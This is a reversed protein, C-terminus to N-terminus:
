SEAGIDGVILSVEGNNFTMNGNETKLILGGRENVGLSRGHIQKSSTGLMVRKGFYADYHNWQEQFFVFGHSKYCELVRYIASILASGVYNRSVSMGCVQQLDTAPQNIVGFQDDSLRINVGVGITVECEGVPDGCVELLIGSLKKGEWLVDNPWKLNLGRAGCSELAKLVAVGIALSLGELSAIGDCMKWLVSVCVSGGFPTVWSRGRRGRGRTQHEAMCFQMKKDSAKEAVEHILDNTSNTVLCLHLSIQHLIKQEIGAYVKDRDLLEIGPSLRYGKGCVADLLLGLAKLGKIKKWVGARSIGLFQGIEEGSHFEGNSLLKLLKEM